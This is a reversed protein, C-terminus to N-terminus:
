LNTFDYGERYGSQLIFYMAAKAAFLMFMYTFESSMQVGTSFIGKTKHKNVSNRAMSAVDRFIGAIEGLLDEGKSQTRNYQHHRGLYSLQAHPRQQPPFLEDLDQEDIEFGYRDFFVTAFQDRNM